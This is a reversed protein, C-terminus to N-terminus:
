THAYGNPEIGIWIGGCEIIIADGCVEFSARRRFQRYSSPRERWGPLAPEMMPGRDHKLQRRYLAHLAERQQRTIPRM